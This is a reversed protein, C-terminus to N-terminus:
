RAHVTLAALVRRLREQLEGPASASTGVARAIARADETRMRQETDDPLDPVNFRVECTEFYEQLLNGVYNEVLDRQLAAPDAAALRPLVEELPSRETMAGPVVRSLTQALALYVSRDFDTVESWPGRAKELALIQEDIANALAACFQFLTAPVPTLGLGKALATAGSTSLKPISALHELSLRLAANTAIRGRRDNEQAIALLTAAGGSVAPSLDTM